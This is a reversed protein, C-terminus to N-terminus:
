GELTFLKEIREQGISKNLKMIISKEWVCKFDEPASYESIFVKHGIGAMQRCWEWFEDHNFAVSYDTTSRYPPDCYIVSNDPYIYDKYHKNLLDAGQLQKSLILNDRYQSNVRDGRQSNIGPYFKKIRGGYYKGGFSCCFGVYGHLDHNPNNKLEKYFEPSVDDAQQPMLYPRDRILRLASIVHPNIDLGMKPGKVLRFSNAGGVFPEIYNQNCERNELVIPLIHKAILKKSGLYQVIIERM